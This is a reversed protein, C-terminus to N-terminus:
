AIIGQGYRMLLVAWTSIAKIKDQDNLKLQLVLRRKKFRKKLIERM